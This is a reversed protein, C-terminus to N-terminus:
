DFILLDFFDDFLDDLIVMYNIRIDQYLVFDKDVFIENIKKIIDM